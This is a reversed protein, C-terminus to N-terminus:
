VWPWRMYWKGVVPIWELPHGPISWSPLVQRLSTTYELKNSVLRVRWVGLDCVCCERGMTWIIRTKVV